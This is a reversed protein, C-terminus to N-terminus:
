EYKAHSESFHVFRYQQHELTITKNTDAHIIIDGKKAGTERLVGQSDKVSKGVSIVESLKDEGETEKESHFLVPPIYPKCFIYGPDPTIHPTQHAKIGKMALNYCMRRLEVTQWIGLILHCFGLSSRIFSLYIRQFSQSDVM